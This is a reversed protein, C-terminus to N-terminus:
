PLALDPHTDQPQLTIGVKGKGTFRAVIWRPM